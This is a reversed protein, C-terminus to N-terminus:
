HASHFQADGATYFYGVGASASLPTLVWYQASDDISEMARLLGDNRHQGLVNGFRM